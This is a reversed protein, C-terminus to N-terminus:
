QLVCMGLAMIGTLLWAMIKRAKSMSSGGKM